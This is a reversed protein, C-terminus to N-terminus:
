VDNPKTERNITSKVKGRLQKRKNGETYFFPAWQIQNLVERPEQLMLPHSLTKM